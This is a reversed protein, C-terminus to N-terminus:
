GEVAAADAARERRAFLTKHHSWADLLAWAIRLGLCAREAAPLRALSGLLRAGRATGGVLRALSGCGAAAGGEFFALASAAEEAALSQIILAGTTHRQLNSAIGKLALANM